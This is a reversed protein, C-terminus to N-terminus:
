EQEKLLRFFNAKAGFNRSLDVSVSAAYGYTNVTEAGNASFQTM